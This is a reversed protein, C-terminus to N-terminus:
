AREWAWGAGGTVAERTQTAETGDIQDDVTDVDFERGLLPQARLWAEESERLYQEAKEAWPGEQQIRAERFIYHLTRLTAPATLVSRRICGIQGCATAATLAAASRLRVWYRAPSGAVPRTVWDEPLTWTIAGGKGFPAAGVRTANDVLLPRWTDCWAEVTVTTSVTSVADLLRVSLGRFQEGSGVYLADSATALISALPVTATDPTTAAATYDTAVLSTMGLVQAPARRTRLREPVFGALALSPFLWDELAKYRKAQWEDAGFQTLITREYAVLDADSVLDNPSWSM